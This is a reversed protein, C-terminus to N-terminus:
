PIEETKVSNNRSIGHASDRPATPSLAMKQFIQCVARLPPLTTTDRGGDPRAEGERGGLDSREWKREAPGSSARSAHRRNISDRRVKYAIVGFYFSLPLHVRQARGQRKIEEHNVSM